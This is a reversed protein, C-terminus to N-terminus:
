LIAGLLPLHSRKQPIEHSFDRNKRWFIMNEKLKLQPPHVHVPHARGQRHDGSVNHTQIGSMALHVIYWMIHYLKDTVRLWHESVIKLHRDLYVTSRATDTTDKRELELTIRHTSPIQYTYNFEILHTRKSKAM